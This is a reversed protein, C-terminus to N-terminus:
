QRPELSEPVDPKEMKTVRGAAALLMCVVSFVSLWQWVWEPVHQAVQAPCTVVVTQCAAGLALFRMSSWRWSQKWDDTLRIRLGTLPIM